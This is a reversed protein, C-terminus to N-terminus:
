RDVRVTRPAAEGPEQRRRYIRWPMWDGGPRRREIEGAMGPPEDALREHLLEVAEDRTLLAQSLTPTHIRYETAGADFATAYSRAGRAVLEEPSGGWVGDGGQGLAARKQDTLDTTALIRGDERARVYREVGTATTYSYIDM